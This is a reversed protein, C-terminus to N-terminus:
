EEGCVVNILIKKHEEPNKTFMIYKHNDYIITLPIQTNLDVYEIIIENNIYKNFIYKENEKNLNKEKNTTYFLEENSNKFNKNEEISFCSNKDKSGTPSILKIFALNKNIM